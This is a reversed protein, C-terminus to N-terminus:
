KLMGWEAEILNIDNQDLGVLPLDSPTWGGAEPTGAHAVLARLARFWGEALGAVETATLLDAPWSWDAVLRPGDAHDQTVANVELAHGLPMGPDRGDGLGADSRVTWDAAPGRAEDAV